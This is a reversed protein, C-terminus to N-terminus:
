YVLRVEAGYRRPIIDGFVHQQMDEGLLNTGIVAISVREDALRVGAKANWQRYSKTPGWFRSDLVDTWFANDVYSLDTSAFFRPHDYSAGVNVRHRPPTNIEERTIGIAKVDPDAQWSYNAFGTWGRAPRATIGIEVGWNIIDGEVNRYKFTKPLENPPVIPLPWDEPRDADSYFEAPFFDINNKLENRYVSVSIDAREHVKGVWGGEVSTLTEEKLQREGFADTELHYPDSIGFDSLDIPQTLQIDLFNQVMSPARFARGFSARFTHKPVPNLLLSARPSWVSGIPDFDDWRVGAVIRVMDHLLIEDQLFMGLENRDTGDPAITLDFNNIRGNAGYTLVNHTGLNTSNTVDVNYTQTKFKMRIPGTPGNTLLNTADGDLVNTFFEVRLRDRRYAARGHALITGTAIDFPGIGSHLIGDTGAYGASVSLSSRHELEYDVRTEFKPQQTGANAFNPYPTSNGPISGTPRPFPDQRFYGGSVKYSLKGRVGAHTINGYGTDYEGGGAVITTRQAYSGLTAASPPGILERPSKTIVNIVGTLANAGWVASGPGRVIEIQKIEGPDIPLFDWMVFGFFDLYITRGDVLVLQGTSLSGSASRGAIQYDRASMQIVNLGPVKRILEPIENVPAAEIAAEGYVTVSSPAHEPAQETRSASRVTVVDSARSEDNSSQDRREQQACAEDLAGSALSFTTVLVTCLFTHVADSKSRSASVM